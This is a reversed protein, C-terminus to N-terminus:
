RAPFAANVIDAGGADSSGYSIGSRHIDASIQQLELIEAQAAEHYRMASAQAATGTQGVLTPVLADAEGEIARLRATLEGAIRDYESACSLLVAENTHMPQTM